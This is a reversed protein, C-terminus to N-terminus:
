FGRDWNTIKQVDLTLSAFLLIYLMLPPLITSFPNTFSAFVFSLLSIHYAASVDKDFWIKSFKNSLWQLLPIMSFFLAGGIIGSRALTDMMMSHGGLRWMSIVANENYNYIGIGWFPAHLFTKWSVLQLQYRRFAYSSTDGSFAQAMSLMRERVSGDPWIEAIGQVLPYLFSFVQPHVAFVFIGVLMIIGVFTVLKRTRTSFWVVCLVMSYTLVMVPTGLGSSYINYLSAILTMCCLIKNWVGRAKFSLYILIPFMLAMSYSFAYGGLGLQMAMIQNGEAEYSSGGYTLARAGEFQIAVASRSFFGTLVIGFMAVYSLIKAEVLRGKDYIVYMLGLMSLSYASSTYLRNEMLDGHGLLAFFNQLFYYASIVLFTIVFFNRLKVRPFKVLRYPKSLVFWFLCLAVMFYAKSRYAFWPLFTYLPIPILLLYSWDFRYRKFM